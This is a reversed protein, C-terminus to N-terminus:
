FPLEDQDVASLERKAEDYRAYLEEETLPTRHFTVIIYDVHDPSVGLDRLTLWFRGDEPDLRVGLEENSVGTIIM